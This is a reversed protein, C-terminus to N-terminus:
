LMTSSRKGLPDSVAGVTALIPNQRHITAPLVPQLLAQYSDTGVLGRELPRCIPAHFRDAARPRLRLQPLSGQVGAAVAQLGVDACKM